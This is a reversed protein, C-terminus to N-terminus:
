LVRRLSVELGRLPPTAHDPMGPLAVRNRLPMGAQQQPLDSPRLAVFPEQFLATLQTWNERKGNGAKESAWFHITCFIL